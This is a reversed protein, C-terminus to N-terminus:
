SADEQHCSRTGHATLAVIGHRYHQRGCRLPCHELRLCHLFLDSITLNDLWKNALALLSTLLRSRTLLDWQM